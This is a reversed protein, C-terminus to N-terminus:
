RLVLADSVVSTMQKQGRHLFMDSQECLGSQELLLGGVLAAQVFDM